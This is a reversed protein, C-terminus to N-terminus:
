DMKSVSGIGSIEEEITPDGKYKVSGVGSINASLKETVNVKATGAGSMDVTCNKAVLDVLKLGCAGSAEVDLSDVTGEAIITAAGSVEIKLKEGEYNTINATGAGSVEVGSLKPVTIDIKMGNSTSYSETVSIKLKGNEVNCEVFEMLNDDLTITVSQEEGVKVNYEGSGSFRVQEFAEVDFTKTEEVGSGKIGTMGEFSFECGSLLIAIRCLALSATLPFPRAASKRNTNMPEGAIASKLPWNTTNAIRFRNKSLEIM